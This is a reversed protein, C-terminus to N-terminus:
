PGTEFGDAFITDHFEFAGIDVSSGVIRAFGAGRQDYNVGMPVLGNSGADIAPSGSLLAMTMSEGGNDALPGLIPDSGVINGDVGDAVNCNPNATEVLSYATSVSSDASSYCDLGTNDALVSNHLVLNGGLAIVVGGGAGASDGSVTSNVLTVTAGSANYNNISLADQVTSPNHYFTTNVFTVNSDEATLAGGVAYAGTASNGALLSAGVMGTDAHTFLGGSYQATNDLIRVNTLTASNSESSIGGATQAATNDSITSNTITLSGAAALIGGGYDGCSNGTVTSDSLSLSGLVEVIAGGGKVAHNDTLTVHTLAIPSSAAFLAGGYADHSGAGAAYGGSLTLSSATLGSSNLYFIRSAGNADITQGSGDITLPATLALQNGGLTITSSSLGSFEIADNSGFPDAGANSCDGDYPAGANISLIAERLSCQGDVSTDDLNSNVVITAAPAATAALTLAIALVLPRRSRSHKAAM